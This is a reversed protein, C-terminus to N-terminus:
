DTINFLKAIESYPMKKIHTASRASANGPILVYRVASGNDNIRDMNGTAVLFSLYREKFIFGPYIEFDGHSDGDTIADINARDVPFIVGNRNKYYMLVIGKNVVDATLAEAPLSQKCNFKREDALKTLTDSLHVDIWASYIAGAGDCVYTTQTTTVESDELTGNNNADIGTQFKTGGYKCNAGAAEKTTRTLATKGDVGNSGDKSCSVLFLTSSFFLLSCHKMKM